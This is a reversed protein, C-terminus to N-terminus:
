KSPCRVLASMNHELSDKALLFIEYGKTLLWFFYVLCDLVLDLSMRNTQKHERGNKKGFETESLPFSLFLLSLM